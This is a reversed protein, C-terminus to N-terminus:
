CSVNEAFITMDGTNGAYTLSTVWLSSVSGKLTIIKQNNLLVSIEEKVM